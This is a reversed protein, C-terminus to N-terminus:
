EGRFEKVMKTLRNVDLIVLADAERGLIGKRGLEGLVRAVTERATSVRAAINSHVPMPQIRAQNARQEFAKPDTERAERLLEAYVRNQAGLTSLDMIRDTSERVVAALRRLLANTVQPYGELTERFAAASLSAALTEGRAVVAASRPRGDIAALEGFVGGSGIEDFSVERGSPSYNVVRTLGAVVFFVDQTDNERDIIQEGDSYTRWRCRREVAQREAPTLAKFLEIGTLTQSPKAGPASVKSVM